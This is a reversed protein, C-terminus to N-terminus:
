DSRQRKTASHRSCFVSNKKAKMPCQSIGNSLIHVCIPKKMKARRVPNHDIGRIAAYTAEKSSSIQRCHQGFAILAINDTAIGMKRLKELYGNFMPIASCGVVASIINDFSENRIGKDSINLLKGLRRRMTVAFNMVSQEDNINELALMNRAVHTIKFKCGEVNVNEFVHFLNTLVAQQEDIQKRNTATSDFPKVKVPANKLEELVEKDGVEGERKKEEMVAERAPRADVEAGENRTRRAAAGCGGPLPRFHLTRAHQPAGRHGPQHPLEGLGAPVAPGLGVAHALWDAAPEARSVALGPDTARGKLRAQWAEAGRSARHVWDLVAARGKLVVSAPILGASATAVLKIDAPDDTLDSFTRKLAQVAQSQAKDRRRQQDYYFAILATATAIAVAAQAQRRFSHTTTTSSSIRLWVISRGLTDPIFLSTPVSVCHAAEETDDDADDEKAIFDEWTNAAYNECDDQYILLDTPILLPVFTAVTSTVPFLSYTDYLMGGVRQRWVFGNVYELGPSFELRTNIEVEIDKPQICTGPSPASTGQPWKLLVRQLSVATEDLITYTGSNFQAPIFKPDSM